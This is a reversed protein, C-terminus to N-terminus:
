PVSPFSARPNPTDGIYKGNVNTATRIAQKVKFGMYKEYL